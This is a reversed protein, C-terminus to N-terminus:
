WESGGGARGESKEEVGGAGAGEAARQQVEVRDKEVQKHAQCEVEKRARAEM